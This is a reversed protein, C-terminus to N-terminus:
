EAAIRTRKLFQRDAATLAYPVRPELTTTWSSSGGCSPCVTPIKGVCAYGTQCLRCYLIPAAM